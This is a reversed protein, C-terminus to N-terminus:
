QNSRYNYVTSQTYETTNVVVAVLFTTKRYGFTHVTREDIRNYESM